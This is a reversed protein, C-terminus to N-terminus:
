GPPPAGTQQTHYRRISLRVFERLNHEVKRKEILKFLSQSCRQEYAAREKDVVERRIKRRPLVFVRASALVCVSHSPQMHASLGHMPLCLLSCTRAAGYHQCTVCAVVSLYMYVLCDAPAFVACM